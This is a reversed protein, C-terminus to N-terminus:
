KLNCVKMEYRLISNQPIDDLIHNGYAISPPLIMQLETGTQCFLLAEKWGAILDSLALTIPEKQFEFRKGNLLFGSYTVSISDNYQIFKGVGNKTISYQLGSDTKIFNLKSKATYNNIKSDFDELEKDSYTSCSAIFFIFFFNVIKSM